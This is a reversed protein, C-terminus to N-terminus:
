KNQTAGGGLAGAQQHHASPAYTDLLSTPILWLAAKRATGGIQQCQHANRRALLHLAARTVTIGRKQLYTLAESLTLMKTKKM